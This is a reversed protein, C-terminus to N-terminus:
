AHKDCIGICMACQIEVTKKKLSKHTHLVREVNMNDINMPKIIRKALSRRQLKVHLEAKM